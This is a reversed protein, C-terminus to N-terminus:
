KQKKQQKLTLYDIYDNLLFINEADLLAIDDLLEKLSRKGYMQHSISTLDNKNVSIGLLYDTSVNYFKSLPELFHVPLEHKGGKYRSYVQQSINLYEAVNTQKLNKSERLDKLRKCLSYVKM